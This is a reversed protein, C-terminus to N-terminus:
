EMLYDTFEFEESELPFVAVVGNIKRMESLLTEGEFSNNDQICLFYDVYQKESVMFKNEQKNRILYYKTLNEEDFFYYLFFSKIEKTKKDELELKESQKELQISLKLNLEWALRYDIYASSIGYVEIDTDYEFILQHKKTKTM